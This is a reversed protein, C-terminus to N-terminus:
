IGFSIRCVLLLKNYDPLEEGLGDPNQRDANM